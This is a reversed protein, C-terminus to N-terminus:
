IDAINKTTKTSSRCLGMQLGSQKRTVTNKTLCSGTRNHSDSHIWSNEPNISVWTILEKLIGMRGEFPHKNFAKSYERGWDWRLFSRFGGFFVPWRELILSVFVAVIKYGVLFYVFVGLVQSFVCFFICNRKKSRGLNAPEPCNNHTMVPVPGSVSGGSQISIRQDRLQSSPLSPRLFRSWLCFVPTVQNQQSSFFFMYIKYPFFHLFIM